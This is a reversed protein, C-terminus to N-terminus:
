RRTDDLNRTATATTLSGLTQLGHFVKQGLIGIGPQRTDKRRFVAVVLVVGDLQAHVNRAHSDDFNVVDLLHEHANTLEYLVSM